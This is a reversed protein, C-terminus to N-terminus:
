ITVSEPLGFRALSFSPQLLQLRRQREEMTVGHATFPVRRLVTVEVRCLLQLVYIAVFYYRIVLQLRACEVAISARKEAM